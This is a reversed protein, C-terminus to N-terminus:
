YIDQFKLLQARFIDDVIHKLGLGPAVLTFNPRVHDIDPLLRADVKEGAISIAFNTHLLACSIMEPM